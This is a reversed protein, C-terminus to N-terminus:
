RIAGVSVGFLGNSISLEIQGIGQQWDTIQFNAVQVTPSAGALFQGIGTQFAQIQSYSSQLSTLESAPGTLLQNAARTGADLGLAAIESLLLGGLGRRKLEVLKAAFAKLKVLRSAAWGAMGFGSGTSTWPSIDGGFASSLDFAGIGSDGLADRFDALLGEEGRKIRALREKAEALQLRLLRKERKSVPVAGLTPTEAESLEKKLREIEMQAELREIALQNQTPAVAGGTAFRLSGAQAEARMRYVADQGGLMRVDSATLVHEGDSLMAPISDSTETGPGYISGRARGVNSGWPFGGDAFREIAGGHAPLQVTSKRTIVDIYVTKGKVGAIATKAARTKTTVDNANAKLVILPPKKGLASDISKTLKPEVALPVKKPKKILPGLITNIDKPAMGDLELEIRFKKKEDLTKLAKYADQIKSVEGWGSMELRAIVRKEGVSRMAKNVADIKTTDWNLARLISTVQKPTLHAAKVVRLIKSTAATDGLVQFKTVVNETVGIKNGIRDNRLRDLVSVKGGATQDKAWDKLAGIPDLLPKGGTEHKIEQIKKLLDDLGQTIDRLPGQGREGGSILMTEFTGKLKELDGRLNDMKTAAVDAAYNQDDVAKTWKDIGEAGQRYLVDAARASDSGFIIAEAAAREKTTMDGFATRLEGAIGALGIFNGQADFASINLQRMLVAARGQPAELRQLMTKLSTGADSGMLGASAFAALTGTTEEINAGAANAILGAQNLAMAMDSVEGQAKGAGAALLDAIHPVDKGKLGFQTMASAAAEASGAVDLNGAAALNLAGTLGGGMVNSASVGAKLLAEVGGAAETASFKTANGADIAAQRLAGINKAADAGTAKVNSMGQDFNAAAKVMAAGAVGAVIGVTGFTSGLVGIRGSGRAADRTLANAMGASEAKVKAVGATFASTNLGLRIMVDRVPM